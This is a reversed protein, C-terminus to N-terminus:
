VAPPPGGGGGGPPPRSIILDYPGEFSGFDLYVSNWPPGGGGAGAPTVAGIGAGVTSLFVNM